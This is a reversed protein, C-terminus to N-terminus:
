AQRRILFTFTTRFPNRGDAPLEQTCIAEWDAENWEPFFTDVESRTHVRTLYFRDASELSERYVEAGGVVFVEKEGRGIALDLAESLSNVRLIGDPKFDPNRSLVIMVRGPLPKGISLYTKRGLILHHGMTLKKFRALDSPLHWPISNQFGIGDNEDLAAILSVIM